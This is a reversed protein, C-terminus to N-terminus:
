NKKAVLPMIGLALILAYIVAFGCMISPIAEVTIPNLTNVVATPLLFSAYGVAQLWLAERVKGKNLRSYAISLGLGVFLWGYYFVSYLASLPPLLKFIVYNGSCAVDNFAGQSLLGFVLVLSLGTVYALMLMRPRKHRGLVLTLHLAFVPLMTIAAYGLRSWAGAPVGLFGECVGYEAMQFVGLFLLIAAVLRTITTMKYRWLAYTFLGIEILFTAFMVPPSFCYLTTSTKSM